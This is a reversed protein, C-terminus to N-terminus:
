QFIELLFGVLIRLNIKIIILITLFKILIIELLIKKNPMVKSIKKKKLYSSIQSLIFNRCHLVKKIKAFYM